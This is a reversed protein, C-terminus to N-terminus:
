REQSHRATKIRPSETAQGARRLHAPVRERTPTFGPWSEPAEVIQGGEGTETVTEAEAVTEDDDGPVVWDEKQEMVELIRQATVKGIGKVGTLAEVAEDKSEANLELLGLPTLDSENLTKVQRDSLLGKLFDFEM